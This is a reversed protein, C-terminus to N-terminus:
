RHGRAGATAAVLPEEAQRAQPRPHTHEVDAAAAEPQAAQLGVEVDGADVEHGPRVVRAREHLGIGRLVQREVVAREVEDIGRADDLV